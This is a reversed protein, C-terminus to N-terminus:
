RVSMLVRGYIDAVCVFGHVSGGNRSRPLSLSSIWIIMCMVSFVVGEQFPPTNLLVEVDLTTQNQAVADTQSKM